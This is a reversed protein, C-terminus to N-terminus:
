QSLKHMTMAGGDYHPAYEPVVLLRVLRASGLGFVGDVFRRHFARERDKDGPASYAADLTDAISHWPSVDPAEKRVSLSTRSARPTGNAVAPRLSVGRM